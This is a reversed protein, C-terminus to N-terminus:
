RLRSRLATAVAEKALLGLRVRKNPKVGLWWDLLAGQVAFHEVHVVTIRGDTYSVDNVTQWLGPCPSANRPRDARAAM